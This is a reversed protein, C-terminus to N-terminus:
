HKDRNLYILFGHFTMNVQPIVDVADWSSESMYFYSPEIYHPFRFWKKSEKEGTIVLLKDSPKVQNQAFTEKKDVSRGKYLLKIGKIDLKQQISEIMKDNINVFLQSIVSDQLEESQKEKYFNM